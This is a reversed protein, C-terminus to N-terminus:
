GATPAALQAAARDLHTRGQGRRHHPRTRPRRQPRKAKKSPDFRVLPLDGFLAVRTIGQGPLARHPQGSSLMRAMM